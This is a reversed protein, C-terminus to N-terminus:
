WTSNVLSTSCRALTWRIMTLVSVTRFTRRSAEILQCALLVQFPLRSGSNVTLIARM